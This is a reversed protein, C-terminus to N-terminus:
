SDSNMIKVKMTNVGKTLDTTGLHVPYVCVVPTM